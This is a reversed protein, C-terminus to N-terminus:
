TRGPGRRPHPKPKPVPAPKAPAAVPAVRAAPARRAKPAAIYRAELVSSREVNGTFISVELSVPRWGTWATLVYLAGRRDVPGFDSYGRRALRDIVDEAAAM